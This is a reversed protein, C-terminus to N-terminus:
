AGSISQALHASAIGAQHNPMGTDEGEMTFGMTNRTWSHAGPVDYTVLMHSPSEKGDAGLVFKAHVTETDIVLDNNNVHELELKDCMLVPANGADRRPEGTCCIISPRALSCPGRLDRAVKAQCPPRRYCRAQRARRPVHNRHPGPSPHGLHVYLLRFDSSDLHPRVVFPYRANQATVDQARGTRQPAKSVLCLLSLIDCVQIGGGPVPNYFAQLMSYVRAKSGGFYGRVAM